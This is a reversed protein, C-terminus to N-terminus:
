LAFALTPFTFYDEFDNFHVLSLAVVRSSYSHLRSPSLRLPLLFLPCLVCSLHTRILLVFSSPFFNMPLNVIYRLSVMSILITIIVIASPHFSRDTFFSRWHATWRGYPPLTVHSRADCHFRCSIWRATWYTKRSSFLFCSLAMSKWSFPLIGFLLGFWICVIDLIRWTRSEFNFFFSGIAAPAAFWFLQLLVIM